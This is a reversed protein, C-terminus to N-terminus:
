ETSEGPDGDLLRFRVLPATTVWRDMDAEAQKPDTGWSETLIRYLITGEDIGAAM